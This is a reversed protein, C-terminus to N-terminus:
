HLIRYSEKKESSYFLYSDVVKDLEYIGYNRLGVSLHNERGKQKGLRVFPFNKKVIFLAEDSMQFSLRTLLLFAGFM